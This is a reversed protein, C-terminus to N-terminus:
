KILATVKALTDLGGSAKAIVKYKKKSKKIIVVTNQTTVKYIKKLVTATDFDAKVIITNEALSDMNATIDANLAVCTPCRSADFLIVVTKGANAYKTIIGKSYNVVEGHKMMIKDDKAMMKDDKEMTDKTMMKDGSMMTGSGMSGSMMMTNKAMMADDKKMM